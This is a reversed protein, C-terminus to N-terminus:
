DIYRAVITQRYAALLDDDTLAEIWEEYSLTTSLWAYDLRLVRECADIIIERM